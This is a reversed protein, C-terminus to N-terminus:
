KIWELVKDNDKIIVIKIKKHYDEISNSGQSLSQLRQYLEIYYHGIVFFNRMIAKMEDWTKIPGEENRRIGLVLQDWWIIIYDIFENIVLKKKKKGQLLPSLLFDVGNKKGSWFLKQIM